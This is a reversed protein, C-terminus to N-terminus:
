LLVQSKSPVLQEYIILFFGCASKHKCMSTVATFVDRIPVFKEAGAGCRIRNLKDHFRMYKLLKTFKNQSMTEGFCSNM